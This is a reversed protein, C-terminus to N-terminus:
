AMPPEGQPGPRPAWSLPLAMFVAQNAPNPADKNAVASSVYNESSLKSDVLAPDVPTANQVNTLSNLTATADGTYSFTSTANFM